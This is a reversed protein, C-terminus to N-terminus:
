EKICQVKYKTKTNLNNTQSQININRALHVLGLSQGINSNPLVTDQSLIKIEFNM